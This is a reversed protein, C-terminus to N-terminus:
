TYTPASGDHISQHFKACKYIHRVNNIMGIKM